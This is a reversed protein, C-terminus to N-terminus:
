RSGTEVVKKTTMLYREMGARARSRVRPRILTGIMGTLGSVRSKTTYFLYFRKGPQAPDDVLSRLELTASFYHDAYIQSTAIVYRVRHPADPPQPAIVLHNLRITPKLGFAGKNWYFVDTSGPLRAQPYARLYYALEPLDAPIDGPASLLRFEAAPWIPHERDHYAGVLALGGSRYLQQRELLFARFMRNATDTANIGRRALEVQFKGISSAPLQLECARPRCGQLDEVDSAELTLGDFDAAVAPEHLKAVQMIGLKREFVDIDRLQQVFADAPADIRVAGFINVDAAERVRMQRAVARGADLAALDAASFGMQTTLYARIPDRPPPTQGSPAAAPLLALLSVISWRLIRV